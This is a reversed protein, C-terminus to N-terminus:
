QTIGARFSSSIQPGIGRRRIELLGCAVLARSVSARHIAAPDNRRRFARRSRKREARVAANSRRLESRFAEREPLEIPTRAEFAERPSPGYPGFPRACDMLLSQAELVDSLSIHAHGNRWSVHEAARKISGIGREIGGNYPPDGPRSLLHVVKNRRLFRAMVDAIFASGNDSKLVIPPGYLLFLHTLAALAVDATEGMCPIALLIAQSALDKVVFIRPFVGDIDSEPTTFDMAWVRGPRKWLLVCKYANARKRIEAKKERYLARLAERPQDPFVSWLFSFSTESGLLDMALGVQYRTDPDIEAYPRGRPRAKLRDKRYSRGWYKLTSPAIGIGAAVRPLSVRESRAQECVEVARIRTTEERELVAQQYSSDRPRM